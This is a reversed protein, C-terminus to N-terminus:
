ESDNIKCLCDAIVVEGVMCTSMADSDHYSIEVKDGDKFDKGFSDLNIVELKKDNELEIILTCGDLGTYDKIIGVEANDCCSKKDCTSAFLLLVFSVIAFKKIIHNTM